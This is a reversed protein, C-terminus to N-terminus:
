KRAKSVFYNPLHRALAIPCVSAIPPTERERLRPLYLVDLEAKATVQALSLVNFRHYRGDENSNNFSVSSVIDSVTADLARACSFSILITLTEGLSANM